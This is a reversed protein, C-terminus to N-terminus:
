LPEMWFRCYFVADTFETERVSYDSSRTLIPDVLSGDSAFCEVVKQETVEPRIRWVLRVEEKAGFRGYFCRAMHNILAQRVKTGEERDTSRFSVKVNWQEAECCLPTGIEEEKCDRQPLGCEDLWENLKGLSDVEEPATM